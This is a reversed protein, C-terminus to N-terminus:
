LISLLYSSHMIVSPQGVDISKKPYYGSEQTLIARGNPRARISILKKCDCPNVNDASPDLQARGGRTVDGM